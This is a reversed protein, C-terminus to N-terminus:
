TEQMYEQECAQRINGQAKGIKQMPVRGSRWTSTNQKQDKPDCPLNFYANFM